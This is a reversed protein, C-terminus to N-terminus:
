RGHPNTCRTGYYTSGCRTCIYPLDPRRATGIRSADDARRALVAATRLDSTDRSASAYRRLHDALLGITDPTWGERCAVCTATKMDLRIRLQRDGCLPCPAQPTWPPRRWGALTEASANWRRLAKYLRRIQDSTLTAGVLGRIDATLDGRPALDLEHTWERTDTHIALHARIAELRAAPTSRAKTRTTGGSTEVYAEGPHHALALQDLLSPLTHSHVRTKRNRHADWYSIAESVSIPNTLDDVLDAIDTRTPQKPPQNM